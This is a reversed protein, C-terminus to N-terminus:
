YLNFSYNSESQYSVQFEEKKLRLRSLDELAISRDTSTRSCTGMVSYRISILQKHLWSSNSCTNEPQLYVMQLAPASIWM